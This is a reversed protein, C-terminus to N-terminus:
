SEMVALQSAAVQNQPDLELVIKFYSRADAERNVESMLIGMQNLGDIHQPDRELVSKLMHVGLDIQDNELFLQALSLKYDLNTPELEAARNLNTVASDRDEYQLYLQSIDYYASAFEPLIRVLTKFAVMAKDLDGLNRYAIGLGYLARYEIPNTNLVQKYINWAESFCGQEIASQGELILQDNIEVLTQDREMLWNLDIDPWKSKFLAQNTTMAQQYDIRNNKFTSSGFHHIFADEAVMINYGAATARLCYDDDEYNGSGYTEDLGGIANYLTRKILMAFGAIRRRPAYRRDQAQALRGAYQPFDAPDDYPVNAVMQLGSICNTLPGVLGISNDMEACSVLRNLWGESVLVDNNLLLLYDGNAIKMGQNNGAAFGRNEHNIILRFNENQAVLKKLYDSTGDDSANDVFIIEYPHTTYKQISAVCRRTYELANWTLIIISVQKSQAQINMNIPHTDALDKRQYIEIEGFMTNHPVYENEILRNFRHFGDSLATIILYRPLRAYLQDVIEKELRYPEPHFSIQSRPCFLSYTPSSRQSWLYIEYEPGWVYIQEGAPLFKNLHRGIKEGAQYFNHEHLSSTYSLGRKRRELQLTKRFELLQPFVLIAVVLLLIIPILSWGSAGGYELLNIAGGSAGVAIPMMSPILHYPMLHRNLLVTFFIFILWILPFLFVLGINPDVAVGILFLVLLPGMQKLFDQAHKIRWGGVAISITQELNEDLDSDSDNSISEEAVISESGQQGTHYKLWQFLTKLSAPNLLFIMTFVSNHINQKRFFLYTLLYGTAIGSFCVSVPVLLGTDFFILILIVPITNIYASQKFLLAGFCLLGALYYLWPITPNALLVLAAATSTFFVQEIEDSSQPWVFVPLSSIIAFVFAAISAITGGYIQHAIIFVACNTLVLFGLNSYRFLQRSLNWYRMLTAYLLWRGPPHNEGTDVYPIKEKRRLWFLGHYGYIGYDRDLPIKLFPIKLLVNVFLALILLM